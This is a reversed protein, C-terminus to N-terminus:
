QADLFAYLPRRIRGGGCRRWLSLDQLEGDSLYTVKWEMLLVEVLM